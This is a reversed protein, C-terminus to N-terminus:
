NNKIEGVFKEVDKLYSESLVEKTKLALVSVPKKGCLKEMESFARKSGSGGMTCFFAVKKFKNKSIYTRVPSSVNFFWIPTGIIVVDYLYPNKKLGKIKALKKTAAERGSKLYGWFGKRSEIDLIEESECRLMNIISKAVKRTTGTRSYFAVLAKM